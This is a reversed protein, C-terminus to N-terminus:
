LKSTVLLSTLNLLRVVENVGIEDWTKIRFARTGLQALAIREFRIYEYHLNGPKSSTTRMWPLSPVVESECWIRARYRRNEVVYKTTGPPVSFADNLFAGTTTFYDFLWSFATLEWVAPIVDRANLGLRDDWGYGSAAEVAVDFGCIFRYQLTEVGRYLRNYTAGTGVSGYGSDKAIKILRDTGSSGTLRVTRDHDYLHTLAAEVLNNIDAVMPKVAFSFELWSSAIYKLLRRGKEKKFRHLSLLFEMVRTTFSRFLTRAERLEATPALAKYQKVENALKNKLRGFAIDRLTADHARLNLTAQSPFYPDFHLVKSFYQRGNFYGSGTWSAANGAKIVKALELKYPNTAPLGKSIKVKFDKDKTGVQVNQSLIRESSSGPAAYGSNHLSDSWFDSHLTKITTRPDYTM